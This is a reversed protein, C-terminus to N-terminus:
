ELCHLDIRGGLKIKGLNSYTAPPSPLLTTPKSNNQKSGRHVPLICITTAQEKVHTLYIQNNLKQKQKTKGGTSGLARAITPIHDRDEMNIFLPLKFKM